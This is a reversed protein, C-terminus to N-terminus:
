STLVKQELIKVKENLEKIAELAIALLGYTDITKTDDIDSLKNVIQPFHPEVEQAVVGFRTPIVPIDEPNALHENASAIDSRLNYEYVNIYDLKSLVSTLPQLNVKLKIDSRSDFGIASVRGTSTMIIANTWNWEPAFSLDYSSTGRHIAWTSVNNKANFCDGGASKYAQITGGAGINGGVKIDCATGDWPDSFTGTYFKSEGNAWVPANVRFGGSPTLSAFPSGSSLFQFGRNTGGGGMNFYMNYDSTTESYRGGGGASAMSIKYNESSDWFKYGKGDGSAIQVGNNVLLQGSTNLSACYTFVGTAETGWQFVDDASNNDDSVVFRLQSANANEYHGIYGADNSVAPFFIKSWQDAKKQVYLDYYVNVKDSFHFGKWAGAYASYEFVQVPNTPPINGDNGSFFTLGKDFVIATYGSTDDLVVEARNQITLKHSGGAPRYTSLSLRGSNLEASAGLGYNGIDTTLFKLGYSTLTTDYKTGYVEDHMVTKTAKIASDGYGIIGNTNIDVLLNNSSDYIKASGNGFTAGGLSLTGGLIRDASMTGTTIFDAVIQGNQTIATGYTGLYGTSSYGLGANNWRWIKTATNIDETDCICVEKPKGTLDDMVIVVYGGENGTILSTANDIATATNTTVKQIAQSLTSGGTVTTTKQVADPAKVTFENKFGGNYIFKNNLIILTRTVSNVDTFSFTDGLDLHPMGQLTMNYGYYNLPYIRNFITDMSAQSTVIDTDYRVNLGTADGTVYTTNDTNVATIQSIKVTAPANLNFSIYNSGDLTFTTTNTFIFRVEGLRNMTCNRSIFLAIQSLVSRLNGSLKFPIDVSPLTQTEFTVGFNTGIETLVSQVSAPYTLSSTYTIDDYTSMKDYCAITITNKAVTVDGAIAYFVGMPVWEYVGTSVEIAVSPKIPVGLLVQPINVSNILNLTLKASTVTGITPMDDAGINSEITFDVIDVETLTTTNIEVKAKIIRSAEKIKTLFTSSVSYM